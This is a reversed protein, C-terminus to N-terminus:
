RYSNNDGAATISQAPAYLTVCNGYNSGAFTSNYLRDDEATGGVTIAQPSGAPSSRCANRQYDGILNWICLLM